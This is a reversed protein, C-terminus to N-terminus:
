RPWSTTHAPFDDSQVPVVCFVLGAPDRMQWLEDVQRLRQAGLTELRAVEADVDDTEIDLHMRPEGAGLRQHALVIGNGLQALRTFESHESTAADPLQGVARAWFRCGEAATEPPHDILVVQIRSRHTM